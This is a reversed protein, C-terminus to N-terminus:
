VPYKPENPRIPKTLGRRKDRKRFQGWLNHIKIEPRPCFPLPGFRWRNWLVLFRDARQLMHTTPDTIRTDASQRLLKRFINQDYADWQDSMGVYPLLAEYPIGRDLCALAVATDFGLDLSTLVLEPETKKLYERVMIQLHDTVRWNNPFTSLSPRHGTCALIM